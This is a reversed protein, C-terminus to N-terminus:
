FPRLRVHLLQAPLHARCHSGGLHRFLSGVLRRRPPSRQQSLSPVHSVFRRALNLLHHQLRM